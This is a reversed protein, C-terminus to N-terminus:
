KRLIKTKKNQLRSDKLRTKELEEVKGLWEKIRLELVEEANEPRRSDKIYPKQYKYKLRQRIIYWVQHYDLIKSNKNKKNYEEQVEKIDVLKWEKQKETIIKEIKDETEKWENTQIKWKYVTKYFNVPDKLYRKITNSIAEWRAIWTKIIEEYWAWKLYAVIINVRKAEFTNKVKLLLKQVEKSKQIDIKVKRM